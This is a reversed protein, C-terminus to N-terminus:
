QNEDVTYKLLFCYLPKLKEFASTLKKEIEQSLFIDDIESKRSLAFTKYKFWIQLKEKADNKIVKKYQEGLIEFENDKDNLFSVTQEFEKADNELIERFRDMTKKSASYYGMGYEYHVSTFYLYFEPYSVQDNERRKFSIWADDRYLSKDNSFRIDRYIRSIIRGAKTSIQINPDISNILPSLNLTLQQLPNLLYKDYQHKHDEFWVKSNNQRVETMFNLTEKSFGKFEVNM